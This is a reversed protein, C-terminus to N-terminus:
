KESGGIFITTSAASTQGAAYVTALPKGNVYAIIGSGHQYTMCLHVWPSGTRIDNLATPVGSGAWVPGTWTQFCKEWM